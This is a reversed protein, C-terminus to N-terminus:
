TTIILKIIKYDKSNKNLNNIYKIRRNEKTTNYFKYKGDESNELINYKRTGSTTLIQRIKFTKVSKNQSFHEKKFSKNKIQNRIKREEDILFKIKSVLSLESKEKKKRLKKKEIYKKYLEEIDSNLISIKEDMLSLKIKKSRNIKEIIRANKKYFLNNSFTTRVKIM